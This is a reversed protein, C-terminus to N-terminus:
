ARLSRLAVAVTTLGLMGFLILFLLAVQQEVGLARLANM